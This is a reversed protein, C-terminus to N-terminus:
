RSMYQCRCVADVVILGEAVLDVFGELDVVLPALIGTALFTSGGAVARLVGVGTGLLRGLLRGLLGATRARRQRWRAGSPNALARQLRQSLGNPLGKRRM